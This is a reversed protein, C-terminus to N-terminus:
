AVIFISQNISQNMVESTPNNFLTRFNSTRNIFEFEFETKQCKSNSRDYALPTCEIFQMTQMLLAHIRARWLRLALHFVTVYDYSRRDITLAVHGM